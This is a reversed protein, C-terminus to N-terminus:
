PRGMRVSRFERAVCITEVFFIAGVLCSKGLSLTRDLSGMGRRGRSMGANRTLVECEHRALQIRIM